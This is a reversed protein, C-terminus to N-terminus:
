DAIRYTVIRDLRFTKEQASQHCLASLYLQGRMQVVGRPTVTRAAGPTSGGLYEMEVPRQEAIALWLDEYGDPPNDLIAAFSRFSLSPSLRCLEEATRIAPRQRVLHVFVDRLLLCDDLARHKEFDILRLHRGITELKYNPLTLRRRAFTCSDIVPHSPSTHRLRSCAVSLFGLDFSANHALLLVPAEGLFELFRPLVESIVPHGTVMQDTIGHIESAGPPIECQPDVLQEFQDLVTGDGRFRVAGIELIQSGVPHLGTTELDFAIFESHDLNQQSKSM